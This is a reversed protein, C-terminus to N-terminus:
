TSSALSEEQTLTQLRALHRLEERIKAVRTVILERDVTM